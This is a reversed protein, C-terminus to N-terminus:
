VKRGMVFTSSAYYEGLDSPNVMCDSYQRMRRMQREYSTEQNEAPLKSYAGRLFAGREPLFGVHKQELWKKIEAWFPTLVATKEPTDRLALFVAFDITFADLYMWEDKVLECDIQTITPFLKEAGPYGALRAKHVSDFFGLGVESAKIKRKIFSFM